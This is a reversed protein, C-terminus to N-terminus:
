TKERVNVSAVCEMADAGDEGAHTEITWITLLDTGGGLPVSDILIRGAAEDVEEISTLVTASERGIRDRIHTAFTTWNDTSFGAAEDVARFGDCRPLREYLQGRTIAQMVAHPTRYALSVSGPDVGENSPAASEDAGQGCAALGISVAAVFLASSLPRM